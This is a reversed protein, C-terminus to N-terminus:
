ILLFYIHLRTEYCVHNDRVIIKLLKDINIM